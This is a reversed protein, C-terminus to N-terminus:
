KAIWARCPACNCDPSEHPKHKKPRATHAWKLGSPAWPVTIYHSMMGDHYHIQETLDGNTWKSWVRTALAGRTFPDPFYTVAQHTITPGHYAM